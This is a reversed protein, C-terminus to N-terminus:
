CLVTSKELRLVTASLFILSARLFGCTFFGHSGCGTKKCLILALQQFFAALLQAALFTRMRVFIQEVHVSSRRHRCGAPHLQHSMSLCLYGASARCKDRAKPPHPSSDFPHELHLSAVFARTKKGGWKETRKEREEGKM